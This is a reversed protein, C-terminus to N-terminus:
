QVQCLYYAKKSGGGGYSLMDIGIVTAQRDLIQVAQKMTYLWSSPDYEPWSM